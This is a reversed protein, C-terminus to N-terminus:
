PTACWGGRRCPRRRRPRRAAGAARAARGGPRRRRCRGAPRRRRPTRRPGASRRASPSATPSPGGATGPPRTGARRGRRRRRRWGPRGRWRRRRSAARDLRQREVLREEVHGAGPRQEAVAHRDGAPQAGLHVSWSSRVHETPTAGFLNRALSAETSALGRASARRADARARRTRPGGPRPAPRGGGAARDAPQPADARRRELPQAPHAHGGDAVEGRELRHGHDGAEPPGVAAVQEVQGGADVVSRDLDVPSSTSRGRPSTRGRGGRREGVHAALEDAQGVGHGGAQAGVARRRAREGELDAVAPERRDRPRRRDGPRDVGASAM